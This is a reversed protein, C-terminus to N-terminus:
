YLDFAFYDFGSWDKLYDGELSLTGRKGGQPVRWRACWQGDTICNDMVYIAEANDTKGLFEKVPLGDQGPENDEFSALRRVELREPMTRGATATGAGAPGVASGGAPSAERCGTTALAVLISVAWAGSLARSECRGKHWRDSM